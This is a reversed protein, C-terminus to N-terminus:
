TADRKPEILDGYKETLHRIRQAIMLRHGDFRAAITKLLGGKGHREDKLVAEMESRTVGCGEALYALFSEALIVVPPDDTPSVQIVPSQDRVVGALKLVAYHVGDVGMQAFTVANRPTCDYGFDDSPPFVPDDGGLVGRRDECAALAATFTEFPTV